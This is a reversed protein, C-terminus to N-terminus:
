RQSRVYKFTNHLIRHVANLEKILSQDNRPISGLVHIEMHGSELNTTLSMDEGTRKRETMSTQGEITVVITMEDLGINRKAVLITRHSRGASSPGNDSIKDVNFERSQLASIIDRDRAESPIVEDFHLKFYPKLRRDRFVDNLSFAYDLSFTTTKPTRIHSAFRQLGRKGPLFSPVSRDGDDGQAGHNSIFDGQADVFFPTFGSGLIGEVRAEARGRLVDVTSFEGPQLLDIVFTLTESLQTCVFRPDEEKSEPVADVLWTANWELCQRQPNYRIASLRLRKRDNDPALGAYAFNVNKLSTAKPWDISMHLSLPHPLHESSELYTRAQLRIHVQLTLRIWGAYQSREQRSKETDDPSDIDDISLDVKLPYIELRDPRYQADIVAVHGSQLGTTGPGISPPPVDVPISHARIATEFRHSSEEESMDVSGPSLGLVHGIRVRNPPENGYARTVDDITEQRLHMSGDYPVEVQLRGEPPSLESLVAEVSADQRYAYRETLRIIGPVGRVPTTDTVNKMLRNM